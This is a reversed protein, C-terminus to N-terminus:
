EGGRTPPSDATDSPALDELDVDLVRAITAMVKFTGARRGKEINQLYAHSIGARRALEAKSLDRYERLVMVPNAGDLIRDFTSAPLRPEARLADLDTADRAEDLRDVLDEYEALPLFAFAAGSNPDRVIQIDDAPDAEPRAPKPTNTANM